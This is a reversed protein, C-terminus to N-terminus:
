CQQLTVLNRIADSNFPIRPRSLLGLFPSALFFTSMVFKNTCSLIASGSLLMDAFITTHLSLSVVVTGEGLTPLHSYNRTPDFWGHGKTATAFQVSVKTVLNDDCLRSIHIVALSRGRGVQRSCSQTQLLMSPRSQCRTAEPSPKGHRPVSLYQLRCHDLTQPSTINVPFCPSLIAM